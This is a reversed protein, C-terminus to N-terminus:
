LDSGHAICIWCVKLRLGSVSGLFHLIWNCSSPPLTRLGVQHWYDKSCCQDDEKLTFPRLLRTLTIIGLFNKYGLLEKLRMSLQHKRTELTFSWRKISQMLGLPTIDVRWFKFLMPNALSM